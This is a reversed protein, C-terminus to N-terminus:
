KPTVFLVYKQRRWIECNKDYKWMFSAHDRLFWTMKANKHHMFHWSSMFFKIQTHKTFHRTKYVFYNLNKCIKVAHLRSVVCNEREKPQNSTIELWKVIKRLVFDQFTQSNEIEFGPLNQFVKYYESFFIKECLMANNQHSFRFFGPLIQLVGFIIKVHFKKRRPIVFLEYSQRNSIEHSLLIKRLIKSM